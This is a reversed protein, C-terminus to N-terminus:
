HCFRLSEPKEWKYTNWNNHYSSMEEIEYKENDASKEGM